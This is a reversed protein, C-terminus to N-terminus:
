KKAPVKKPEPTVPEAEDDNEGYYDEQEDEMKNEYKPKAACGKMDQEKKEMMPTEDEDMMPGMHHRHHMYYHDKATFAYYNGFIAALIALVILLWGLFRGVNRLMSEQHNANTLIWYAIGFSLALPILQFILHKLIMM